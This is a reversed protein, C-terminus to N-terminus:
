SLVFGGDVTIATGTMYSSADSALLLLAGDLDAPAGLRGVPVKRAIMKEGAPSQFFAQNMPTEIYGPAIANVRVGTKALEAGMARTLHLLGAKSACYPTVQGIVDQGLVSAINIISGAGREVMRRAVRQAVFFCGRLNTDVVADYDEPEQDLFPKTIAVGANNVLIDIGGLAAEIDIVAQEIAAVDTVDMAVPLATGGRGEIEAGLSALKDTQRAAVAVAAGKDALVEAFRRGLGQSAGTVLATKGTLNFGEAMTGSEVGHNIQVQSFHKFLLRVACKAM